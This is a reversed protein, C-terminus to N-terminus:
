SHKNVSAMDLAINGALAYKSFNSVSQSGSFVCGTAVLNPITQDATIASVNSNSIILNCVASKVTNGNVACRVIQVNDISQGQNISIFIANTCDITCDIIKYSLNEFMAMDENATAGTKIISYCGSPFQCNKVIRNRKPSGSVKSNAPKTYICGEAWMNLKNAPQLRSIFVCNQIEIDGDYVGPCDPRLLVMDLVNESTDNQIITCGDAVLQGNGLGYCITNLVCNRIANSGFQAFHCDWRNLYCREFVGNTLFRSGVVGWSLSDGVLIDHVHYFGVSTLALFYGSTNARQVPNTGSIHDVEVNVCNMCNFIGWHFETIGSIGTLTFNHIHVNSRTCYVLTSMNATSASIVTGNCVDFTVSPYDHVNYCVVNGNVPTLYLEGTEYYGDSSTKIIPVSYVTIESSNGYRYGLSMDANGDSVTNITFVKRKLGNNTTRNKLISSAPVTIDETNDPVIELITGNDYDPMTIVSGNFDIGGFGYCRHTSGNFVVNEGDWIIKSAKGNLRAEAIAVDLLQDDNYLPHEAKIDKIMVDIASDAIRKGSTNYVAM